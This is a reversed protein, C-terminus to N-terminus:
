DLIESMNDQMKYHLYEKSTLRAQHAPPPLQKQAPVLLNLLQLRLYEWGAAFLALVSQFLGPHGTIKSRAYEM